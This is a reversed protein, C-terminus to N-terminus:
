VSLKDAQIYATFTLMSVFTTVPNSGYTLIMDDALQMRKHHETLFLGGDPTLHESHLIIGM